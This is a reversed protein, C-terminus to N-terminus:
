HFVTRPGSVLPHDSSRPLWSDGLPQTTASLRCLRSVSTAHHLIALQHRDLATTRNNLTAAVAWPIPTGVHPCLPWEKTGRPRRRSPVDPVRKHLPRHYVPGAERTAIRKNAYRSQKSRALCHAIPDPIRHRRTTSYASTRSTATIISSFSRCPRCYNSSEM